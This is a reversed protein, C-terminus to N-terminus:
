LLPMFMLLLLSAYKILNNKPSAKNPTHETAAPFYEEPAEENFPLTVSPNWIQLELNEPWYIANSSFRVM